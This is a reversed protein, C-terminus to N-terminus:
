QFTRGASEIAPRLYPQARMRSTGYEVYMSYEVDRSGVRLTLGKVEHMLSNRLRGTEVPVLNRATAEIQAGASELKRTIPERLREMWSSDVVIRVPEAM